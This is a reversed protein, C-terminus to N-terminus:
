GGLVFGACVHTPWEHRPYKALFAALLAESPACAGGQPVGLEAAHVGGTVLIADLGARRAGLIDHEMSDGVAVVRGPAVGEARLQGLAAAYVRAHPKGVYRVDGGMQAYQAGLVGPMPSSGGDPRVLDPNAVLMPLGRALAERLLPPGHAGADYRVAGADGRGTRVEFLGRALIFDAEDVRAPTCGATAAYEDDDDGNGFVVCRPGRVAFPDLPDPASAPVSGGEDAPPARLRARLENWVIDGSTVVTILPIGDAISASDLWTCMGLSLAHLRNITEIRRKSSNSLIIIRKRLGVQLQRIASSAGAYPASGDHLVGFQDLLLADYHALVDALAVVAPALAPRAAASLAIRGSRAARASARPAPSWGYARRHHARAAAAGVRAGSTSLSVICLLLVAALM